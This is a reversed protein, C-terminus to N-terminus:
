EVPEVRRLIRGPERAVPASFLVQPVAQEIRRASPGRDGTLRYIRTAPGRVSRVGSRSQDGIRSRRGLVGRAAQVRLRRAEAENSISYPAVLAMRRPKRQAM